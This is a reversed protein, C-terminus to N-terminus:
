EARVFSTYMSYEGDDFEISICDHSVVCNYETGDEAIAKGNKISKFSPGIDQFLTTAKGNEDVILEDCFVYWGDEMEDAYAHKYTGAAVKTDAAEPHCYEERVKMIEDESATMELNSKVYTNAYGEDNIKVLSGDIMKYRDYVDESYYIKDATVKVIPITDDTSLFGTGDPNIIIREDCTIADYKGDELEYEDVFFRVYNGAVTSVDFPKAVTGDAVTFNIASLAEYEAMKEEFLAPDDTDVKEGDNDVVTNKDRIFGLYHDSESDDQPMEDIISFLDMIGKVETGNEGLVMGEISPPWCRAVLVVGDENVKLPFSEDDAPMLSGAVYKGEANKIYPTAEKAAMTEGDGLNYAEDAVILVKEDAGMMDIYAYAEKGELMGVIEDYSDFSFQNVRAEFANAPYEEIEMDEAEAPETPQTPQVAETNGCGVLSVIMGAAMLAALLRKKM